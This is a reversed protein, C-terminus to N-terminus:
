DSNGDTSIGMLYNAQDAIVLSAHIASLTSQNTQYTFVPM